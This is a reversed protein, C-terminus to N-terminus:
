TSEDPSQPSAAHLSPLYSPPCSEYEDQMSQAIRYSAEITKGVEASLFMQPSPMVINTKTRTDLATMATDLLTDIDTDLKELISSVIGEEQLILAVLLHVADVQNQGREIALENAKRIAEQAKTTFNGFPIMNFIFLIM